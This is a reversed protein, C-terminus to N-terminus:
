EETRTSVADDDDSIRMTSKPARSLEFAARLTTPLAHSTRLVRKQRQITSQLTIFLLNEICSARSITSTKNEDDIEYEIRHCRLTTATGRERRGRCSGIALLHGACANDM